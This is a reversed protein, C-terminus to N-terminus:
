RKTVKRLKGIHLYAFGVIMGALHGFHSIGGMSQHTIQEAVILGASLVAAVIMFGRLSFPIPVFMFNIKTKPFTGSYLVMMGFLAGSAGWVGIPSPDFLTTVIGSGLGIVLYAILFRKAGMVMELMVGFNFLVLMNMALHWVALQSFFSSVIQVPKFQGTEPGLAPVGNQEMLYYTHGQQTYEEHIGFLNVKELACYPTLIETYLNLAVFVLVNIIILNLVVPTIHLRQM